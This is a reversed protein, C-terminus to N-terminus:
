GLQLRKTGALPQSSMSKQGADASEFDSDHEQLALNTDSDMDDDETVVELIEKGVESDLVVDNFSEPMASGQCAQAIRTQRKKQPVKLKGTYIDQLFDFFHPISDNYFPANDAQFREDIDWSPSVKSTSDEKVGEQLSKYLGDIYGPVEHYLSWITGIVGAKLTNQLVIKTSSNSHGSIYVKGKSYQISEAGEQSYSCPGIRFPSRVLNEYTHLPLVVLNQLLYYHFWAPCLHLVAWLVNQGVDIMKVLTADVSPDMNIAKNCVEQIKLCVALIAYLLTYYTVFTDFEENQMHEAIVHQKIKHLVEWIAYGERKWINGPVSLNIADYKKDTKIRRAFYGADAEECFQKLLVTTVLKLDRCFLTLGKNITTNLNLKCHLIDLSTYSVQETFKDLNHLAYNHKDCWEHYLQM